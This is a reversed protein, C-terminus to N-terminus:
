NEQFTAPVSAKKLTFYFTSGKGAESEAWIQGGHSTVFEKCIQLGMGIGQEGGTGVKNQAGKESFLLKLDSDSIGVGNDAVAIIIHEDEEEMSIEVNKGRGSFKIANSILNRLVTLIMNKDVRVFTPKEISSIVDVDKFNSQAETMRIAENVLELINEAEANDALSAKKAATWQLLNELLNLTNQGSDLLMEMIEVNEHDNNQEFNGKLLDIYGLIATFPNRLDHALVRQMKNKEEILSKLEQNSKELERTRDAVKKQLLANNQRISRVRYRYLGFIMGGVLLVMLLYFWVTQWYPPPVSFSFSVGEENWYGDNNSARVLLRYEGPSLTTYIAERSGATNHWNSDVGELKYQFQVYDPNKFSLATFRFIIRQVDFPIVSIENPHSAVGDKEIEDMIVNPINRNLQMRETDLVAMGQVTPIFLEGGANIHSSPMFGGTTERIPLGESVGIRAIRLQDTENNFFLDLQEKDIFFVGLNGALWANRNRDFEIQSVTNDFLGNQTTITKIAGGPEYVFLGSGYSGFWFRGEDDKKIVRYNKATLQDFEDPKIIQGNSYFGIGRDTAFILSEDEGFIM